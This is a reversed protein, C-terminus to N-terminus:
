WCTVQSMKTSKPGGGQDREQPPSTLSRLIQGSGLSLKGAKRNSPSIAVGTSRAHQVGNQLSGISASIRPGHGQAYPAAPQSLSAWGFYFPDPKISRPPLLAM